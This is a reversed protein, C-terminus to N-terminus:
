HSSIGVAKELLSSVRELNEMEKKTVLKGSSREKPSFANTLAANIFARM